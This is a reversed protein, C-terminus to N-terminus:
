EVMRKAPPVVLLPTHGTHLIKTSVSGLLLRRVPGLGRTGVAILHPGEREETRALLADAPDGVAVTGIVTQGSSAEIRKTAVDLRAHEDDLGNARGSASTRAGVEAPVAEVLTLTAGEYLRTIVAAVRAARESVESGDFGVVVHAPPWCGEGGRVILVPRHANHLM